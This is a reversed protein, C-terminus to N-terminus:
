LLVFVFPLCLTFRVATNQVGSLAIAAYPLTASSILLITGMVVKLLSLGRQKEDLTYHYILTSFLFGIFM